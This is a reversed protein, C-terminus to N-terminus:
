GCRPGAIRRCLDPEHGLGQAAAACRKRRKLQSAAASRQLLQKVGQITHAGIQLRSVVQTHLELRELRGRRSRHFESWDFAGHLPALEIGAHLREVVLDVEGEGVHEAVRAVALEHLTTERVHQDVLELIEVAGLQREDVEKRPRPAVEEDHAVVVLEDVTPTEGLRGVDEVEMLENGLSGMGGCVREGGVVPARLRDDSGRLAQHEM